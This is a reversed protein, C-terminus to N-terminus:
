KNPENRWHSNLQTHKYNKVMHYLTM